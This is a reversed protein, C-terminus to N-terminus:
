FQWSAQASLINVSAEYTGSLNGRLFNENTTTAVKDIEADDVTIHVVAFDLTASKSMRYKAGLALWLRDADPVRPTRFEPSPTPTKDLAVGIRYSWDGGPSYTAGVSYRNVNELGLSIVSDSQTNETFDIRLEPLRSWRTHTLDAMFAWEPSAQHFASLSITEPLTVYTVLASNTIGLAAATAAATANPATLTSQGEIKHSIKSRYALGLRSEPTLQWLAGVNFGYSIDDGELRGHGDLAGPAECGQAGPVATCISGYDVANTLVAEVRQISVGGGLSFTDSVRYALAPNLNITEIESRDAHYRGVWDDDYDTALGFPVNIGFGFSLRDGLAQTYYFNPVLASEGADGGNGGSINGGTLALTASTKTFKTSPDIFHGAGLVHSGSLRTMGAPNYWVTSADDAIAAGGAYANGLGSANQEQLQFLAASAPAAVGVLAAAVSLSLAHRTLVRRLDLPALEM